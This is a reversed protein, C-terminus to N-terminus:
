CGDQFEGDEIISNHSVATTLIDPFYSLIYNQFHHIAEFIVWVFPYLFFVIRTRFFFIAVHFLFKSLFNLIQFLLYFCFKYEPFWSRLLGYQFADDFVLALMHFFIQSQFHLWLFILNLCFYTFFHAFMVAVKLVDPIYDLSWRLIWLIAPDSICVLPM